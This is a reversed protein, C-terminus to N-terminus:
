SKIGRTTDFIQPTSSLSPLVSSMRASPARSSVLPMPMRPLLRGVFQSQARTAPSTMSRASSPLTARLSSFWRPRVDNALRHVDSRDPRLRRHAQETRQQAVRRALREREPRKDEAAIPSAAGRAPEAREAVGHAVNRLRRRRGARHEGALAIRQGREAVDRAHGARVGAM